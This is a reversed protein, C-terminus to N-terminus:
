PKVEMLVRAAVLAWAYCPVTAELRDPDPTHTATEHCWACGVELPGYNRDFHRCKSTCFPVGNGDVPELRQLYLLDDATM